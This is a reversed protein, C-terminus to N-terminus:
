RAQVFMRISITSSGRRGGEKSTARGAKQYIWAVTLLAPQDVGEDGYERRMGSQM